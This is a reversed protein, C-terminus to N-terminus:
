AHQYQVLVHERSHLAVCKRCPQSVELFVGADRSLLERLHEQVAAPSPYPDDRLLSAPLRLDQVQSLRASISESAEASICEDSARTSPHSLGPM